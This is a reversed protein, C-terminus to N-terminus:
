ADPGLHKWYDSINLLAQLVIDGYFPKESKQDEIQKEIEEIEQQITPHLIM